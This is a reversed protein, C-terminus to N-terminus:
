LAREAQKIERRVKRLERNKKKLRQRRVLRQEARVVDGYAHRRGAQAIRKAKRNMALMSGAQGSPIFSPGDNRRERASREGCRARSSRRKRPSM